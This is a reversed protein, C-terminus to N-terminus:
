SQRSLPKVSKRTDGAVFAAADQCTLGKCIKRVQHVTFDTSKAGAPLVTKMSVAPPPPEPEPDTGCWVAGPLGHLDGPPAQVTQGPTLKYRNGTLRGYQVGIHTAKYM